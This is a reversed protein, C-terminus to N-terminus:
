YSTKSAKFENGIIIKNAIKVKALANQNYKWKKHLEGYILYTMTNKCM